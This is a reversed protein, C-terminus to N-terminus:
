AIARDAALYVSASIPLSMKPEFGFLSHSCPEDMSVILLVVKALNWAAYVWLWLLVLSHILVLPTKHEIFIFFM